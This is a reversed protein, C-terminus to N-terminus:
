CKNVNKTMGLIYNEINVVGSVTRHVKDRVAVLIEIAREEDIIPVRLKSQNSLNIGHVTSNLFLVTSIVITVVKSTFVKKFSPM